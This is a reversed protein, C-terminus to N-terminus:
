VVAVVKDLYFPADCYPCCAVGRGIYETEGTVNLRRWVAGTAIIIAPASFRENSQLTLLHGNTAKEIANVKRNEFISIPYAEM